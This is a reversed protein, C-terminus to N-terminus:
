VLEPLRLLRRQHFDLEVLDLYDMHLDELFDMRCSSGPLSAVTQDFCSITQHVIPHAISFSCAFSAVVSRHHLGDDIPDRDDHDDDRDDRHDVDGERVDHVDPVLLRQDSVFRM